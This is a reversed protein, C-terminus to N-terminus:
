GRRLSSSRHVFRHFGRFAGGIKSSHCFWFGGRIVHVKRGRYPEYSDSMETNGPYRDLWDQVWEQVNGAMDYCQYPSM